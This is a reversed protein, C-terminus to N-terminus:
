QLPPFPCPFLIQCFSRLAQSAASLPTVPCWFSSFLRRYSQETSGADLTENPTHVGQMDPGISVCDMGPIKELLVGCEAGGHTVKVSPAKGAVRQYVCALLKRLPSERTYEWAAHGTSFSIRGGLQETIATLRQSLIEVGYAANSRLCFGAELTKGDLMLQGFNLSILPM